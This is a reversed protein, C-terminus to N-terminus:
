QDLRGVQQAHGAPVDARHGLRGDNRPRAFQTVGFNLLTDVGAVRSEDLECAVQLVRSQFRESGYRGLVRLAQHIGASRNVFCALGAVDSIPIWVLVTRSGSRPMGSRAVM